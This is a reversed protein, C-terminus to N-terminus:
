AGKSMDSSDFDEPGVGRARVPRAPNGVCIQWPPMDKYVSSRAGVVAGEGITVGPGVFVDAAIWARRCITIPRPILAFDVHDADHTAGCLYTYQSVTAGDELTITAVNYCDVADGLCTGVGMVLNGPYWVKVKPYVRASKHIRAGFLRLVINRWTHFSRPTPRFLVVYTVSWLFRALRNRLSHESRPHTPTSESM